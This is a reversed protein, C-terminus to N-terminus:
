KGRTVVILAALALLPLAAGSAPRALKPCKACESGCPGRGSPDGACSGPTAMAPDTCAM